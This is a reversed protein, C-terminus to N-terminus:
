FVRILVMYLATGAFISLLTSRKWLHLLAVFAASVLAAPGKSFSAFSVEKMSYVVLAAIIAAPLVRGLYAATRPMKRKAGFLLFPIYRTLCTMLATVSIMAVTYLVGNM